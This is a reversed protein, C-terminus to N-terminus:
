DVVIEHQNGISFIVGTEDITKPTNKVKKLKEVSWYSYFEM